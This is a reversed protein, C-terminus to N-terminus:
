KKDLPEVILTLGERGVVKVTSGAAVFRSSRARWVVGQVRVEGMPNLDTLAVGVDGILSEPGAM